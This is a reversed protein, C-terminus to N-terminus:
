GGMARITIKCHIDGFQEMWFRYLTGKLLPLLYLLEPKMFGGGRGRGGGGGLASQRNIAKRAGSPIEELIECSPTTSPPSGERGWGGLSIKSNLLFHGNAGRAVDPPTPSPPFQPLQRM